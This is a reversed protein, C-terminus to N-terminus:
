IQIESASTPVYYVQKEVIYINKYFILLCALYLFVKWFLLFAIPLLVEVKEVTNVVYFVCKESGGEKLYVDKFFFSFSLFVRVCLFFTILCSPVFKITDVYLM